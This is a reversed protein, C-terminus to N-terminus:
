GSSQVPVALPKGMRWAWGLVVSQWPEDRDLTSIWDFTDSYSNTRYRRNTERGSVSGTTYCVTICVTDPCM